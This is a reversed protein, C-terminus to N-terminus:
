RRRQGGPREGRKPEVQIGITEAVLRGELDLQKTCVFPGQGAVGAPISSQNAPAAEMRGDGPTPLRFSAVQRPLYAESNGELARALRVDAEAGEINRASRSAVRARDVTM